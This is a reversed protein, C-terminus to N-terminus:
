FSLVSLSCLVVPARLRFSNQPQTFCAKGSLSGQCQTGFAQGNVEGNVITRQKQTQEWLSWPFNYALIHSVWGYSLLVCIKLVLLSWSGNAVRLPPAQWRSCMLGEWGHGAQM